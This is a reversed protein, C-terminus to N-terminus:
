QNDKSAPAILKFEFNLFMPIVIKVCSVACDVGRLHSRM